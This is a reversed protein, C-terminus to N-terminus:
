FIELLLFKVHLLSAYWVMPEEPLGSVAVWLDGLSERKSQQSECDGAKSGSVNNKSQPPLIRVTKTKKQSKFWQILNVWTLIQKDNSFFLPHIGQHSISQHHRRSGEVEREFTRSWSLTVCFYFSFTFYCFKSWASIFGHCRYLGGSYRLSGSCIPCSSLAGFM